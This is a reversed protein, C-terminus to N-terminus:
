AFCRIYRDHEKGELRRLERDSALDWVRIIREPRGQWKPRELSFYAASNASFLHAPFRRLQSAEAEKWLPLAEAEASLALRNDPSLAVGFVAESFARGSRLRRLEVGQSGDGLLLWLVGGTALGVSVLLGIWHRMKRIDWSRRGPGEYFFAS